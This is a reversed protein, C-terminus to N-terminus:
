RESMKEKLENLRGLVQHARAKTTGNNLLWERQQDFIKYYKPTPHNDVVLTGIISELESKTSYSLAPIGEPSCGEPKQDYDRFLLVAGAAMIEYHRMSDWGGKLCTLGFFSSAMDDYYDEENEYKYLRRADIGLIQHGFLAYPPVTNQIMQTKQESVMPRILHEPIGFGTHWVNNKGTVYEESWERKFCPTKTIKMHDHGDIYVVGYKALKNIEPYDPVGYADTVGYIVFDIDLLEGRKQTYLESAEQIELRTIGNIDPISRSFMTFGWGHIENKPSDSFDGYMTKKRPYDILDDRLIHRLGSLLVNEQYDGQATPDDTTIYIIRMLEGIKVLSFWIRGCKRPVNSNTGVIM